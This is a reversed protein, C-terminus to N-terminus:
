NRKRTGDFYGKLRYEASVSVVGPEGLLKQLAEIARPDDWDLGAGAAKSRVKANAHDLFQMLGERGDETERLVRRLAMLKDFIKNALQPQMGLLSWQEALDLYRALQAAVNGSALLERDPSVM